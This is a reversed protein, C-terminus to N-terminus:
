IVDANSFIQKMRDFDFFVDENRSLGKLEPKTMFTKAFRTEREYTYARIRQMCDGEGSIPKSNSAICIEEYSLHYMGKCGVTLKRKGEFRYFLEFAASYVGALCVLTVRDKNANLADICLRSTAVNGGGSNIGITIDGPVHLFDLFTRSHEENFPKDFIFYTM